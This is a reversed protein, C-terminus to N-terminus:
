ERPLVALGVRVLVFVALLAGVAYMWRFARDGIAHFSVSLDTDPNVQLQRSFDLSRGELPMTVHIAQGVGAAAAQQDLMREAVANLSDNDEASLNQAVQQGYEATWNGDNFGKQLKVQEEDQVNRSSRLDGRRNVLGVIAQQRTLNRYQVRVDENFDAQGQSYYMASEFAKKAEQQRGERSFQEGQKLVTEAKQRNHEFESANDALYRQDDFVLAPVGRQTTQRTVTGGFGYYRLHPPTYLTWRINTLPLEFRPGLCTRAGGAIDAGARSSYAFEVTTGAGAAQDLPVLLAKGELLPPVSRGNVFCSWLESGEPLITKLFRMDGVNMELQVHTIVQDGESVVSRMDVSRVTAPLVGATAHRVVSLDLAYDPQTARYCLIADSLDGAKFQAPIARADEEKLGASVSKPQVRLRPSAMVVLYGKQSETGVTRLPLVRMDAAKPDCQTQYSVELAYSTEAKNHLEVQWIGKLKDVEQVRAINRGLVALAVGPQPAQLEFVKVGANDIKYEIYGKGQLLGEVLRVRQLVEARVVPALVETKLAISWDPRLLRFALYGAQNIGLEAPNLESVGDRAGTMFRVGREGSIVLTGTHKIADVVSIRPVAIAAEITKGTRGLVLNINRDGITQKNFHVRVGREGEKVEDWHSVDQGTLSEIEYDAPIRIDIMFLGSRAIAVDLKSSLVIREDTIDLRADETVRVEPLVREAEVKVEAPLQHYRFARKLPATTQNAAAPGANTPAPAFDSVNMASLAEPATVRVQVADPAAFAIAGRQRATNEVIPVGITATYPLSEEPIQTCITLTFDGSVPKELLAELLHTTQDFRWTSLGPATVATVTMGAPIRAVLSQLEGQAIQYRVAHNLNVVGPEFTALTNVECFAVAKEMGTRRERPRWSFGAVAVPGFVAVAETRGDAESTKLQVSGEAQVDIDSAPISMTVRNRLNPPLKLALQWRGGDSTVPVLYELTIQYKGPRKVDLMYGGDAARVGLHPSSLKYETLVAPPLLAAVSTAAQAEFEMTATVRAFRDADRATGPSRIQLEVREMVQTPAVAAPAQTQAAPPPDNAEAGTAALFPSLVLLASLVATGVGASTPQGASPPAAPPVQTLARRGARWARRMVTATLLAPIGLAIAVFTWPALVLMSSGGLVLLTLGAAMRTRRGQARRVASGILLAAALTAAGAVWLSGSAGAWAPAIHLQIASTSGALSVPRVFAWTTPARQFVELSCLASLTDLGDSVRATLALLFLCGLVALLSSWGILRRRGANYTLVAAAGLAALLAILWGPDRTVTTYALRCLSRAVSVLGPAAVDGEPMLNGSTGAVVRNQPLSVTWKAFVSQAAVEPAKLDLRSFFRLPQHTEAYVLEVQSPQNPDRRRQLPVLIDGTGGQQDLIQVDAGDVRGSWLRVNPPLRVGLYQLSANKTYYTVTTVAEGERSVRTDLKTLDVVQALLNRTPYRMAKLTLHHPSGVYKWARLVPDNVLLLYAQPIEGREIPILSPDAHLDDAFRLSAAGALVVYGVDSEAGTLEVGGVSLEGGEYPFPQDYTVLLTYDGFVKQQFSVQWVGGTREWGRIDRGTFEVNQYSEPIVFRLARVPAGEVHYTVSCSGFVAAEGITVLQLMEAHISPDTKEVKVGLAWDASKFRFAQQADPVRVPLAGTHVERLAPSPATQLRVGKEARLAVFGRESKAERVAFHPARFSTQDGPLNRELRVDVVTRGMVAERFYVHIQRNTGQDRVDYDAVNSGGVNAVVWAPDTEITIDRAPADRVDLEVSAQLTLDNDALGLILSDESHFATVIDDATLELVYPMSAYLYAYANRAPMSRTQREDMRVAPFAAQDVQTLGLSKSVALKVASDTGIALFGSTRIVDRPTLVPMDFKCPFASLVREGEVGLLYTGEKPRNLMVILRRGAAEAPAISWERIDAGRVQTVNFDPPLDLVVRTLSGQVVRYMFVSDLRLAGVSASAISNADCTVALEGSLAKVEPKWRVAFERDTGLFAEVITKGAPDTKRESGLASPFDVELDTRDCTMAVRRVAAAPIAFAARRWDADRAALVAFEFTVKQVGRRPFQAVYTKGDRALRAGAPLSESLCTVDGEVLPIRANKERIDVQFSLTFTVNEGQIEGDLTLGSVEFGPVAGAYAFPALGLVVILRLLCAKM